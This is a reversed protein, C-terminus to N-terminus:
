PTADTTVYEVKLAGEDGDAETPMAKFSMSQRIEDPGDVTPTEGDFRVNATITLTYFEGANDPIEPGEFELVLTAEDGNRYRNYLTLDEFDAEFSGTFDRFATRQPNRRLKSGLRRRDAELGNDLTADVSSVAVEDGAISLSGHVFTLLQLDSPFADDHATEGVLLERGIFSVTATAIEDTSCQIQLSGVKASVIDKTVDDMVVQVTLHKTQLDDPTFTHRYVQGAVDETTAVGGLAHELLLGFGQNPLEFTMDGDVSISGEAWRPQFSQARLAQSELRQREETFGESRAEMSRTPAVRTGYESEEALGFKANTGLKVAAGDDITSM